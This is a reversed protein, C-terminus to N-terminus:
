IAGFAAADAAEAGRLLERRYRQIAGFGSVVAARGSQPHLLPSRGM